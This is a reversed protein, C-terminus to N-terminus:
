ADKGRDGEIKHKYIHVVLKQTSDLRRLGWVLEEKRQTAKILLSIMGETYLLFVEFDFIWPYIFTFGLLRIVLCM